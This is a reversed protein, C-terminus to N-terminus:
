NNCFRYYPWSVCRSNCWNYDRLFKDDDSKSLSSGADTITGMIKGVIVEEIDEEGLKECVSKVIRISEDDDNAIYRHKNKRNIEGIRRHDKSVIYRAVYENM